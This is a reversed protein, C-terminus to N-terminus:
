LTFKGAYIVPGTPAGTPSGGVPELSVALTDTGALVKAPLAITSGSGPIVGLSRPAGGPPIAWLELARDARVSVPTIPRTVLARGDGSISAVISAPQAGAAGAGTAALVVIVPPPVTSPLAVLVALVLAAVSAFLAAGRWFALRHWAGRRVGPGDGGISSANAATTGASGDLRASIRRWVSAPPAVPELAVTLPLLREQWARVAERLLPHAPLLSELRRRAAGRLLGAAYDAALRDALDIRSYDM